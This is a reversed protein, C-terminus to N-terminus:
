MAPSGRGTTPGAYCTLPRLTARTAARPLATPATYSRCAYNRTRRSLYDTRLLSEGMSRWVTARPSEPTVSSGDLSGVPLSPSAQLMAKTVESTAYVRDILTDIPESTDLAFLHLPPPPRMTGPSPATMILRSLKAWREPPLLTRM